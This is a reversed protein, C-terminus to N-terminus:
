RLSSTKGEQLAGNLPQRRERLYFFFCSCLSPSFSPAFFFIRAWFLQIPKFPWQLRGTIAIGKSLESVFGNAVPIRRKLIKKELHSLMPYSLMVNSKGLCAPLCAPFHDLCLCFFTVIRYSKEISAGLWLLKSPSLFLPSLWFLICRNRPVSSRPFYLALLIEANFFSQM